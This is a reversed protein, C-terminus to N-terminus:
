CAARDGASAQRAHVFRGLAADATYVHDRLWAVAQQELTLVLAATAGHAQFDQDLARLTAAFHRHEQAHPEAEPYDLETMLREEDAFHDVTYDLLFDLLQGVESRDQRLMADLLGDIRRFLEQHQADLKAVGVSLASTWQLAVADEV